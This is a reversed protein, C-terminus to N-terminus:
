DPMPTLKCGDHDEQVEKKVSCAKATNIAQTKLHRVQGGHMRRHGHGEPSLRGELRLRLRRAPCIRHQGKRRQPRFPQTGDSHGTQRTTSSTTDWVVEYMLQPIRVPHSAPCAGGLSLFNAPGTTPYAVHDKHNLSDSTRAM